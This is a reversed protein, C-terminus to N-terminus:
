KIMKLVEDYLAKKSEGWELALTKAIEKTSMGSNGLYIIRNQREEPTLVKKDEKEVAGELVLM